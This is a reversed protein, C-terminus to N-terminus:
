IGDYLTDKSVDIKTQATSLFPRGLIIPSPNPASRDDMYLVYFDTPFILGDVQVLVDEVIRDSYAFTRDALQIILGTEKLPGLLSDYISKPIVNISAGLDLMANEINSHGIKCPITFVGPDGCKPSLKRQLIAPVNEGITVSEDGRLKRKNVCLDKLFKAYKPVQKIADLLPINVQVKRFVNLIEKEKEVNKTKELGCPFPPLNSKIPISSTFTVKPDERIRGEKEIEKEIEEESKSKLNTLKSGEVEKGNRLTMASVNKPNAEPQSPLKEFVHSELPNIATAMQSMRIKMDKM